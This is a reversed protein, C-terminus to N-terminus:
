TAQQKFPKIAKGVVNPWTNSSSSSFVMEVQPMIIPRINKPSKESRKVESYDKTSNKYPRMM